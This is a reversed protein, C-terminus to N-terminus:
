LPGTVPIALVPCPAQRLVRETTSGRIADLMGQHGATAMGIMNAKMDAAVQLVTEVVDGDRLDVPLKDFRPPPRAGVHLLRITPRAGLTQCFRGIAAIAPTPAPSHDVPILIRELHLKGSEFDVFGAREGPIFLTQTRARRSMAEAVSPQVWRPMGGRGHTALVMLESPHSSLFRALGRVPDHADIEVKAVEVGLQEFIAATSSSADLLGWRALTQRIHPFSQWEKINSRRAIHAVYLKSKVAISIRLAHAFANHSLDSFDTPHIIPAALSNM